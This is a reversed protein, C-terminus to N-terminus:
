GDPLTRMRPIHFNDRLHRLPDDADLRLAFERSLLDNINHARAIESLESVAGGKAEVDEGSSSAATATTESQSQEHSM